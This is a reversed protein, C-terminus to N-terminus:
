SRFLKGWSESITKLYITVILAINSFILLHIHSWNSLLTVIFTSFSAVLFPIWNIDLKYERNAIITKLLFLVIFSIATSLAAGYSGYLPILLLGGLLNFTSAVLLIWIHYYTKKNYNIGVGTIEALTYYIPVYLLMVFIDSAGGYSSPLILIIIDKFAISLNVIIFFLLSLLSFINDYFSKNEPNDQFRHLSFPIWFNTFGAKIVNLSLAIKLGASYIGLEEYDSLSKILVKDIGQLVWAFLFAPIFPVGYKLFEKLKEFDIKLHGLFNWYHSCLSIATIAAIFHGIIFGCIIGIFSREYFVFFGISFAFSSISYVIQLLSFTNGRNLMRLLTTSFNHYIGVVLSIVLIIPISDDHYDFLFNSLEKSFLFILASFALLSLLSCFILNFLLNPRKVMETENFFRILSQHLGLLVINISLNYFLTFMAARGFEEPSLFSTVIPISILSILANIWSGYSFKLLHKFSDPIQM